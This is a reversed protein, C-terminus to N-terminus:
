TWEPPCAVIEGAAVDITQIVETVAPLLLEPAGAARVVYVDNSGTRLVDAVRGLERGEPTRVRLGVIQFVYFQGPPLPHVEDPPIRLTAGRLAEAAEPTETGALKMVVFRGSAEAQEVRAPRAAQRHGGFRSPRRRSGSRGGRDAQGGKHLAPQVIFVRSLALLHDPFDTLPAVRVAGHAGHPRTIEGVIVLEEVQGGWDGGTPPLPAPRWPASPAPM